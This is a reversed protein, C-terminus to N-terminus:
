RPYIFVLKDGWRQFAAQHAPDTNYSILTSEATVVAHMYSPGRTLARDLLGLDQRGLHYVHREVVAM